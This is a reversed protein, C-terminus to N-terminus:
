LVEKKLMEKIKKLKYAKSNNKYKRWCHNCLIYDFKVSRLITHGCYPCKSRITNIKNVLKPDITYVRKNKSM